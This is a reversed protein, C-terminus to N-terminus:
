EGKMMEDFRQQMEEPSVEELLQSLLWEHGFPDRVRGSRDGYFQDALPFVVECGAEVAREFWQDVHDTYIQMAVTTGGLSTPGLIKADPYEDALMLVTGNIVIQANAITQDPYTLRMLEEAEFVRKYFDIAESARKMRLYATVTSFKDPTPTSSSM